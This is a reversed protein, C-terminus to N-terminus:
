RIKDKTTFVSVPWQGSLSFDTDSTLILGFPFTQDISQLIATVKSFTTIVVEDSVCGNEDNLCKRCRIMGIGLKNLEAMITLSLVM